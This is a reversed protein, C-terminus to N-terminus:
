IKNCLNKMMSTLVKVNNRKQKKQKTSIPITTTPTQNASTTLRGGSMEDASKFCHCLILNQLDIFLKIIVNNEQNGNEQDLYDQGLDQGNEDEYTWTRKQKVVRARKEQNEKPKHM